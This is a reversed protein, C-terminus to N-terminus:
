LFIPIDGDEVIWINIGVGTMRCHEDLLRIPEPFNFPARQLNIPRWGGTPIDENREKGVFTTTLLYQSGSRKINRLAQFIHEYSFHVLCDRCFILDVNPLTDQLLDLYIFKRGARGYRRQNDRILEDIIDGGIYEVDMEVLKMWFFDGCPIDLLTRCNLERILPPLIKRITETQALNSGTGSISDGDGVYESSLDQHVKAPSIPRCSFLVENTAM